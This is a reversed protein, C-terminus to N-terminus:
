LGSYFDIVKGTATKLLKNFAPTKPIKVKPFFETEIAPRNRAHTKKWLGIVQGNYVIVPRFIGNSAIATVHHAAALSPTRDKYSIIFEDFAPLLHVSDRARAGAIGAAFWYTATGMKESILHARNMELATRADKAPLGSWWTFDQVTAPGHSEFYRRCLTALAEDRSLTRSQGTTKTFLAYTNKKQRLPGNCILKDLEATLLVHAARQGQLDLKGAALMRVIEDRNLCASDALAKAILAHAKGILSPTLELERLRPQLSAHIFPATLDLMWAADKASVFHWTPRLVHTRIIERRDIADQVSRIPAEPLRVGVAWRAMGYDQAQMAGMWAVVEEPSKLMTDGVRQSKLRRLSIGNPTLNM